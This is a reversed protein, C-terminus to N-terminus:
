FPKRALFLSLPRHDSLVHEQDLLIDWDAFKEALEKPKLLYAPKKPSGYKAAEEMFTHIAVLSGAPLHEHYLDLLPRHLYRCQLIMSPKQLHILQILQQYDAECNLKMPTVEVQWREIFNSIREIAMPNRDIALVRFGHLGLFISDRGSGCGIDFALPETDPLHQEILEIYDELLPSARWLRRSNHDTVWNKSSREQETFDEATFVAEIPYQQREFLSQVDQHDNTNTFLILTTDKPPLEYWCDEIESLPINTAGQIHGQRYQEVPRLDIIPFDTNELLKSKQM